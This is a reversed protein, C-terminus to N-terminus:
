LPIWERGRGGGVNTFGLRRLTPLNIIPADPPSPPTADVYLNEVELSVLEPTLHLLSELDSSSNSEMSGLDLHLIRLHVPPTSSHSASFYPMIPLYAEQLNQCEAFNLKWNEDVTDDIQHARLYILRPFRKTCLVQLGVGDRYSDFNMSTWREAHDELLRKFGDPDTSGRRVTWDLHLPLIGAKRIQLEVSELPPCIYTWFQPDAKIIQWWRWTVQALEQLAWIRPRRNNISELLIGALLEPPLRNIPLLANRQRRLRIVRTQAVLQLAESAVQYCWALRDLHNVDPELNEQGSDKDGTEGQGMANLLITLAQDVTEPPPAAPRSSEATM